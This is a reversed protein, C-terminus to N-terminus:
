LFIRGLTKKFKLGILELGALKALFDNRDNSVGMRPVLYPDWKTLDFFYPAGVYGADRVASVVEDTIDGPQGNPYCFSRIQTQLREELITRSTVVEHRLRELGIRSLIPHSMTHSGIEIDNRHMESLEDWTVAAYESTPMFPLDVELGEEVTSILHEKESNDLSICYDSLSKWGKFKEEQNTLPFKRDQGKINVQLDTKSTKEIAYHLRDPWLWLKHDIFNVTVFFTAPLSFRKLEPYAWEYFDRYGDDVTIVACKEPWFGKTDFYEVCEGFSLVKYRSAVRELQWRFNDASVRHPLSVGEPSFRHYLFIKPFNGTLSVAVRNLLETKLIANKVMQKIVRVGTKPQQKRSM